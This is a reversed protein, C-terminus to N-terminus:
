SVIGPLDLLGALTKIREVPENRGRGKVDILVPRIGAGRAGEIDAQLDDGVHIAEHPAVGAADLAARFIALDPKACRADCSTVIPGFFRRLSRRELIADLTDDWNSIIGLRHGAAALRELTEITDEAPTLWEGARHRDWLADAAVTDLRAGYHEFFTQYFTHWWRRNEDLDVLNPGNGAARRARMVGSAWGGGKPELGFERCSEGFVEGFSPRFHLLTGGVDFFIFPRM